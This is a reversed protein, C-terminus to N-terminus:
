KGKFRINRTVAIGISQLNDQNAAELFVLNYYGFINWNYGHYGVHPRVMYGGSTNPSNLILSYGVDTGVFLGASKPYFRYMLALPIEGISEVADNNSFYHSYGSKIGIGSAKTELFQLSADLGLIFKTVKNNEQLIPSGANVGVKLWTNEPSMKSFISKQANAVNIMFLSALGILIVKLKM